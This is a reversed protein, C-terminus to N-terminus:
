AGREAPPRRREEPPHGADFGATSSFWLLGAASGAGGAVPELLHGVHDGLDTRQLVRGELWAACTELIPVGTSGPRWRVLSLKDVEDGTLEGFTSALDLQDGGLLHLGLAPSASAVEATRNAKSLCVLFRAPVISCQTVFGALCGDRQSGTGATVVFMPYDLRGVLGSSAAAARGAREDSGSVDGGSPDGGRV